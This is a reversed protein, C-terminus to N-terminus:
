TNDGEREAAWQLIAKKDYRVLSKTVFIRPMGQRIMKDFTGNAVHLAECAEKKTLYQRETSEKMETLANRVMGAIEEKLAREVEDSLLKM